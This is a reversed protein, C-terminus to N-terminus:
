LGKYYTLHAIPRHKADKLNQFQPELKHVDISEYLPFLALAPAIGFILGLLVIGGETALARMPHGTMFKTRALPHMLLPPLVMIPANWVFRAICCKIIGRRGAIISEGHCKGEDDVVKVGKEINSTLMWESRRMLMVNASSSMGVALFPITSRLMTLQIPSMGKFKNMLATAGLAMSCSVIVAAAYGQLILGLSVNPNASNSYNVCCNFSQNFWHIWITRLPSAITSPLISTPVIYCNVPIFSAMRFVPNIAKETVPHVCAELANRAHWMDADTKGKPLKKTKKFEAVLLQKEKLSTTTEFMHCPNIVQYFNWLRGWFTNMDNLPEGDARFPPYSMVERKRCTVSEAKEEEFIKKLYFAPLPFSIKYLPAALM